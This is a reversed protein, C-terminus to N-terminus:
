DSHARRDVITEFTLRISEAELSRGVIPGRLREAYSHEVGRKADKGERLRCQRRFNIKILRQLETQSHLHQLSVKLWDTQIPHDQGKEMSVDTYNKTLQRVLQREALFNGAMLWPM